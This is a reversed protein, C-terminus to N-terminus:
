MMKEVDIEPIDQWFGAGIISDYEYKLIALHSKEVEALDKLLSDFDASGSAGVLSTYYEISKKEIDQGIKLVELDGMMDDKVAKEPTKAFLRFSKIRDELPKNDSLGLGVKPHSSESMERFIAYHHEEAKALGLFIRKGTDNRTKEAAETYFKVGSSELEMGKLLIDKVKM